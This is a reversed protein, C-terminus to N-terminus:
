AALAPSSLKEQLETPDMQLLTWWDYTPLSLGLLEYPCRRRRKGERFPRCNWALRKLDLLEQSLNRHRAQHMRVVSNVGEVASSARVVRRLIEGVRRYAAQEPPSLRAKAVDLIPAALALCATDDARSHRARWLAVLAARPEPAPVAQALEAHLRELFVVLRADRLQRVVKAWHVGSLERAAAELEARAWAVDNLGGDPRWVALAAVARQWARERQCAREFAAVAKAWAKAVVDQKFHRRDRGTRNYREKAREQQEAAQWCAEAQGWEVRLARTGDQRVHFVDLRSRLPTASAGPTQDAQEQRAARTLDLGRALGSGGDVAVDQLAPWAALARAWTEGSRDAAREGLAWVLSHPEVGMLVPRRRCFIEDL